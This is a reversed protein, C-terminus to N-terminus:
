SWCDHLPGNTLGKRLPDGGVRGAEAMARMPELADPVYQVVSAAGPLVPLPVTLPRDGALGHIRLSGGPRLSRFAEGVIRALEASELNLNISGELRIEDLSNEAFPIPSPFVEPIRHEWVLRPRAVDEAFAASHDLDPVSGAGHENIDEHFVYVEWLVRDPDSIWFKTQRAYCCEVEEERTTPFGAEEVRRQIEVLEESSLVRLGVHNLNGGTGAHCPILSLVLPPDDLEFKTYDAQQKAAARGLLVRYFAVSRELNSVNLSAHFKRVAVDAVTTM